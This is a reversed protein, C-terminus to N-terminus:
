GIKIEASLIKKVNNVLFVKFREELDKYFHYSEKKYEVLPDKGGYARLSTSDRLFEMKEIHELWLTDLLRLAVAKLIEMLKEEEIVSIKEQFDKEPFEENIELFLNTIYDKLQNDEAKQLIDDRIKYFATRQKNIVDDYELVHKRIDFYLGEIKSQSMEIAKTVMKHEIPEDEPWGLKQMMNSLYKPAFVRM